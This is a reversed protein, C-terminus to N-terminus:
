RRRSRRRPPAHEHPVRGVGPGKRNLHAAVWTPHTRDCRPTVFADDGATATEVAHFAAVEASALHQQPVRVLRAVKWDFHAAM